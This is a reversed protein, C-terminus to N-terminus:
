GFITQNGCFSFWVYQYFNLGWIHGDSKVQSMVKVKFKWPWIHFKSYRLGLPRIALFVFCVYRNFELSWIHGTPKSRPWLRPRQIKLTLHSRSRQDCAHGEGLIKITLNKLCSYRMIPPGISMSCLPHSYTKWSWSWSWKTVLTLDLFRGSLSRPSKLHRRAMSEGLKQHTWICIQPWPFPWPHHGFMTLSNVWKDRPFHPSSKLLINNLSRICFSLKPVWQLPTRLHIDCFRM